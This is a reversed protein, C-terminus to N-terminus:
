IQNKGSRGQKVDVIIGTVTEMKSDSKVFYDKPKKFIAHIGHMTRVINCKVGLIDILLMLLESDRDSDTDIMILGDKLIGAAAEVEDLQVRSRRNFWSKDSACEIFRYYLNNNIM